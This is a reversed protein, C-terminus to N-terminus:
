HLRGKIGFLGWPRVVLIIGTIIFILLTAIRPEVLISLAYVVGCILSGVATGLFSGLGGIVMVCFAEILLSQDLGLNIMGVMTWAIGGLGALLASIAFVVTYIFPVPIGLANVMERHSHCARVIRGFKTKYLLFWIGFAIVIGLSIVFIHYSPFPNGIISVPRSLIAPRTISLFTPGWFFKTIDTFIYFLAYTALIQESLIRAYLRRMLIREIIVGIVIMTISTLIMSAWFSFAYPTFVRWFTWTLYAAIMYFSFHALNMVGIVGFIFTLGSTVIFLLAGRALASLLQNFILEM